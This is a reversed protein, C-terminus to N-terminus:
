LGSFYFQMIGKHDENGEMLNLDHIFATRITINQNIKYSIGVSLTTDDSKKAKIDHLWSQIQLQMEINQNKPLTYDTEFLYGLVEDHDDNGYATEAKFLFPGYLYQSDLGVRKKSITKGIIDARPFTNMGMTQLIDGYMFSLGYQLNNNNPKSIRLTSLFSNDRRYISMGSGLQLAADFDFWPAIVKFGVGWDKKFGINRSMLTQLITAHTDLVPELGFGPDFHGFKLKKGSGLNFQAFANHIQVGWAKHSNELSDYAVRLQLDTTLFDGYDNSFKRYDEFGLSNTLEQDKGIWKNNHGYGGILNVEKYFLNEASFALTMLMGFFVLFISFIKMNNKIIKM